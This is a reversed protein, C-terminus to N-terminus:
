HRNDCYIHLDATQGGVFQVSNCGWMAPTFGYLAVPRDKFLKGVWHMQHHVKKGILNFTQYEEGIFQYVREFVVQHTENDVVVLHNNVRHMDIITLYYHYGHAKFLLNQYPDKVHKEDVELTDYRCAIEPFESRDIESWFTPMLQGTVFPNQKGIYALTGHVNKPEPVNFGIFYNRVDDPLEGYPSLFAGLEVESLQYKLITDSEFSYCYLTDTENLKAAEFFLKRNKANLVHDQRDNVTSELYKKEIVPPLDRGLNPNVSMSVFSGGADYVVLELTDMEHNGVEVKETVTTKTEEEKQFNDANRIDTHSDPNTNETKDPTKNTTCSYGLTGAIVFLLLFRTM